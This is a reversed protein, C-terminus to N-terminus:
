VAHRQAAHQKYADVEAGRLLSEPVFMELQQQSKSVLQQQWTRALFTVFAQTARLLGHARGNTLGKQRWAYEFRRWLFNAPNATNVAYRPHNGKWAQLATRCRLARDCNVEGAAVQRMYRPTLGLYMRLKSLRYPNKFDVFWRPDLIMSLLFATAELDLTPIFTLDHLVPHTLLLRKTHDTFGGDKELQAAVAYAPYDLEDVQHWGGLSPPLLCQRMRYLAITPTSRERQSECTLPSAVELKGSRRPSCCHQYLDVILPANEATGLVRVHLSDKEALNSVFGSRDPAVTPNEVGDSYWLQGNGALQMKLIQDEQVRM